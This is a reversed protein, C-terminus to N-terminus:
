LTQLAQAFVRITQEIDDPSHSLSMFAAEFASPAIYVGHELLYHFVKVFKDASAARASDADVVNGDTFYFSFM